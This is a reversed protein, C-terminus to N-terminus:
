ARGRSRWTGTKGHDVAEGLHSIGESVYANAGEQKAADAHSLAEEAHKTAEDAHGMEGHAKAESAHGIAEHLHTDAGAFGVSPIMFIGALVLMGSVRKLTSQDNAM